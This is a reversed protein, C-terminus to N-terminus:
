EPLEDLNFQSQKVLRWVGNERRLEVQWRRTPDDLWRANGAATPSENGYYAQHAELVARATDDRVEVGIWRDVVFSSDSYGAYTPDDYAELVAEVASDPTTSSRSSHVASLLDRSRDALDSRARDTRGISEAVSRDAETIRGAQSVREAIGAATPRDAPAPMVYAQSQVGELFPLAAKVEAVDSGAGSDSFESWVEEAPNGLPVLEGGGRIEDQIATRKAPPMAKLERSSPYVARAEGYTASAGRAAGAAVAAAGLALGVVLCAVTGM